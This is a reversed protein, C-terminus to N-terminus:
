GRFRFAAAGPWLAMAAQDTNGFCRLATSCAVGRPDFGVIDYQRAVPGVIFPAV